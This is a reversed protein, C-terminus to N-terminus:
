LLPQASLIESVDFLLSSNFPPELYKSIQGRFQVALIHTLSPYLDPFLPPHWLPFSPHTQSSHGFPNCITPFREHKDTDNYLWRESLRRTRKMLRLGNRWSQVCGPSQPQSVWMSHWVINPIVWIGENGFDHSLNKWYQVAACIKRPLSLCLSLSQKSTTVCPRTLGNQRYLSLQCYSVLLMLVLLM